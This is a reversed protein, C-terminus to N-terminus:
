VGVDSRSHFFGLLCRFDIHHINKSPFSFLFAGGDHGTSQVQGNWDFRRGRDSRPGSNLNPGPGQVASSANRVHLHRSRRDPYPSIRHPPLDRPVPPSTIISSCNIPYTPLLLWQCRNPKCTLFSNGVPCRQEAISNLLSGSTLFPSTPSLMLM